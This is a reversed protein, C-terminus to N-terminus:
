EGGSWPFTGCNVELLEFVQEISQACGPHMGDPAADAADFTYIVRYFGAPLNALDLVANGEVDNVVTTGTALNIVVFTELEPTAEGTGDGLQASGMLTVANSSRCYSNALNTFSPNPYWCRNSIGLTVTGNSVMIDYGIGDVHIGTIEYNSIGPTGTPVETLVTGIPIALPAAPPAPSSSQFLGNVVNVTWSQGAPADTVVVLEDFQGNELNTANNKCVCPDAIMPNSDDDNTIGCSLLQVDLSQFPACAIEAPAPFLVAYITFDGTTMPFTADFSAETGGADLDAFAVAGLDTGGVYPDSTPTDFYVFRIGFDAIGNDAQALGELGSATLSQTEGACLIAQGDLAGIKMAVESTLSVVCPITNTNGSGDTATITVEVVDGDNLNQVVSTALPFQSFSVSCNDNGNLGSILDPIILECNETLGVVRDAPCPFDLPIDNSIIVEQTITSSNNDEDTFTWTVVTTGETTIPFSVDPVGEIIEDCKGVATPLPNPASASCQAEIPPLALVPTYFYASGSSSGVDDNGPAGVLVKEGSIAVSEGFRDSAAADSASLEALENWNTDDRQFIYVSGVRSNGDSNNDAGVTALDGDISVAEGFRDTASADNATVKAQENWTNGTRQFLYASGADNGNDDNRPAGIIVYEGSIAVAAGFRDGQAADSATLEAEEVWTNAVLNFIYASGADSGATDDRGAGVIIYNGAIGVSQGFQDLVAGDSATLKAQETWNVGTRQFVYVAGQSTDDVPAGVIAYDNSVAVSAGFQDLAAGDSATLKAQQTWVNGSRQFIYAAGTEGNGFPAGVIAYDGLIAVAAGFADDEAADNATLQQTESPGNDDCTFIYAVGADPAASSSGSAGVIALDGSMAVATGFLDENALDSSLVKAIEEWDDSSQFGNIVPVTTAGPTGFVVLEDMATDACDNETFTYDITITGVGAAAPDFTYTMGNGDDTVGPGSYVGGVPTGGGLGLLPDNNVCQDEPATTFSVTPQPFVSIEGTATSSCNNINTFDYTVTHTGLGAAAPDFDYTGDGNDTVGPGAYTGISPLDIPDLVTAFTAGVVLNDVLVTENLDSSFQRLNIASIPIGPDALDNGLISSSTEDIPDLWFESINDDQNYRVVIRYTEGYTLDVPWIADSSTAQTAIGLSFDGGGAAPVVEVFAAQNLTQNISLHIFSQNNPGPIPGGPDEVTVDLAFYVDGSVAQFPLSVANQQAGHNVKAQENEVLLSGPTGSNYNWNPNSQLSGDPYDFNDVALVDAPFDTNTIAVTGSALGTQVGESDCFSGPSTFNVAPLAFVNVVQTATVLCNDGTTISYTITHLGAGAAIPDFSYTTGNNDDTVGPGSYVGGAPSGGSLNTQISADECLDPIDVLTVTPTPFVAVEDTLSASCGKVDTYTFTIPHTGDGAAAPDFSYTMGNGDDIVGPGSYVGGVFTTATVTGTNLIRAPDCDFCEVSISGDRIVTYTGTQFNQPGFPELFGFRILRDSNNLQFVIGGDYVVVSSNMPNYVTDPFNLSVGGNIEVSWDVISTDGPTNRAVFYGTIIALDLRFPVDNFTYIIEEFNADGGTLDTQLGDNECFDSPATFTVEAVENVIVEAVATSTCGNGYPLGYTIVHTGVGAAIPSFDFTTGDNGDTVGPGSHTGGIPFGGTLGLLDNDDGCLNFIDLTLSPATVFSDVALLIVSCENAAANGTPDVLGFEVEVTAGVTGILTGSLIEQTILAECNDMALIEDEINPVFAFCSGADLYVEITDPCLTFEPQSGDVVEVVTACYASNGELNTVEAIAVNFGLNDCSPVFDTTISAIACDDTSNGAMSTPLDETSEGLAWTIQPECIATPFSSGQIILDYQCQSANTGNNPISLYTVEHTGPTLVLNPDLQNGSAVISIIGDCGEKRISYQFESECYFRTLPPTVAEGVTTTMQGDPITFLQDPPCEVGINDLLVVEVTCSATQGAADTAVIELDALNGVDACEIVDFNTITLDTLGCNDTASNVINFALETLDIGDAVSAIFQNPCDLMPITGPGGNDRQRQNITFSCSAMRDRSEVVTYEITTFGPIGPLTDLSPLNGAGRITDTGITNTTITFFIDGCDDYDLQLGPLAGSGFSSNCQNADLLPLVVNNPCTIVLGDQNNVTVTTSCSQTVEDGDENLVSALYVM